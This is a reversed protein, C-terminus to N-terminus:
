IKHNSDLTDRFTHNNLVFMDINFINRNYKLISKYYIKFHFMNYIAEPGAGGGGGGGGWLVGKKNKKELQLPFFIRKKPPPSPVLIYFFVL